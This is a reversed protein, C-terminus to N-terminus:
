SEREVLESARESLRKARRDMERFEHLYRKPLEVNYAIWNLFDASNRVEMVMDAVIGGDILESAIADDADTYDYDPAPEPPDMCPGALRGDSFRLQAARNM